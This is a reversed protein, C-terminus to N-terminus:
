SESTWKQIPLEAFKKSPAFRTGHKTDIEKFCDVGFLYASIDNVFAYLFFNRENPMFQKFPRSQGFKEAVGKVYLQPFFMERGEKETAVEDTHWTVGAAHFVKEALALAEEESANAIQGTPDLIKSPDKELERIDGLNVRGSENLNPDDM